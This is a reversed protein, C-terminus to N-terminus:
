LYQYDVPQLSLEGTEAKVLRGVPRDSEHVIFVLAQNQLAWAQWIRKTELTRIPEEDYATMWALKEFHPAMSALDCPFFAAQGESEIVVSMHYPTHGPTLVARLGPLIETDPATLLEMQGSQVLPDFNYALYTAATRENPRMASEYEGRQCIYKAKPFVAVSQGAENWYTNGMCHDAHLHTNIVWHIDEPGLGARKIADMLSGYPRTLGWRKIGKEDLKTDGYGTDVLINQGGGQILLCLSNSPIMHESDPTKYRSWLKRPILGFMGGPDSVTLSDCIMHVQYQGITFM